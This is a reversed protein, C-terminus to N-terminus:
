NLHYNVQSPRADCVWWIWADFVNSCIKKWESPLCCWPVLTDWGNRQYVNLLYRLTQFLFLTFEFDCNYKTTSTKLNSNSSHWQWRKRLHKLGHYQYNRENKCTLISVWGHWVACLSRPSRARLSTVKTQRTTRHCQTTRSQDFMFGCNFNISKCFWNHLYIQSCVWQHHTHTNTNTHVTSANIRRPRKERNHQPWQQQHQQM